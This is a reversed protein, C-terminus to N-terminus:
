RKDQGGPSTENLWENVMKVTWQHEVILNLCHLFLDRMAKEEVFRKEKEGKVTKQLRYEGDRGLAMFESECTIQRTNRSLSHRCSENVFYHDNPESSGLGM